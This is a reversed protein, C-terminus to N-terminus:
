SLLESLTWIHDAIRAEMAPTIRLTKHVRCFSYYALLVSGALRHGGGPCPRPDGPLCTPLPKGDARLPNIEQRSDLQTKFIGARVASVGLIVIVFVRLFRM